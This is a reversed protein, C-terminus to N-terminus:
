KMACICLSQSDQVYYCSSLTAKALASRERSPYLKEKKKEENKNWKKVNHVRFRFPEHVDIGLLAAPFTTYNAIPFLMSICSKQGHKHTQFNDERM